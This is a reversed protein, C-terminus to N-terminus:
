PKFYNNFYNAYHWRSPQADLVAQPEIFKRQYYGALAIMVANDFCYDLEKPAKFDLNKRGAAIKMKERLIQNAAVGGSLHVERADYSLAIDVIKEALLAFLRDSLSAALDCIEEYTRKQSINIINGIPYLNEIFITETSDEIKIKKFEEFEKIKGKLAMDSFVSGGENRGVNFGLYCCFIGFFAGLSSFKIPSNNPFNNRLTLNKIKRIDGLNNILWINGHSFSTM